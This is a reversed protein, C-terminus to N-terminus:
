YSKVYNPHNIIFKIFLSYRHLKIQSDISHLGNTSNKSHFHFKLIISPNIILDGTLEANKLAFDEVSNNSCMSLARPCPHPRALFREGMLLKFGQCWLNCIWSYISDVLSKSWAVDFFFVQCRTGDKEWAGSLHCGSILITSEIIDVLRYITMFPTSDIRNLIIGKTFFLELCDFESQNDM